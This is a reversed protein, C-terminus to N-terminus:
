SKSAALQILPMVLLEALDFAGRKLDHGAGPILTLSHRAPILRLAIDFEEATGFEDSDGSIFLAATNLRPFHETRMQAPKGPPHLPYSLLLLADCLDPDDAAVMSSQRCGYSHGGVLVPGSTLSGMKEVAARISARDQPASARSPPGFRRKLRFALDYRLVFMGSETLAEAVKRLLPSDCNAGAGHTLVIGAGNPNRPRHLFEAV